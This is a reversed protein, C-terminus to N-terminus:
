LGRGRRKSVERKNGGTEKRGESVCKGSRSESRKEPQDARGKRTSSSADVRPEHFQKWKRRSGHFVRAIPPDQSPACPVPQPCHHRKGRRPRAFTRCFREGGKRGGKMSPHALSFQAPHNRARSTESTSTDTSAGLSFSGPPCLAAQSLQTNPSMQGARQILVSAEITNNWLSKPSDTAAGQRHQSHCRHQIHGECNLKVRLEETTDKKQPSRSCRPKSYPYM